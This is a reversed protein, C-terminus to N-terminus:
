KRLFGANRIMKTKTGFDLPFVVVLSENWLGAPTSKMTKLYSGTSELTKRAIICRNKQLPESGSRNSKWSAQYKFAAKTSNSFSRGTWDLPGRNM